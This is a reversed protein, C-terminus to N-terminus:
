WGAHLIMAVVVAEAILAPWMAPWLLRYLLLITWFPHPEADDTHM